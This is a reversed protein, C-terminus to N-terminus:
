GSSETSPSDSQSQESSAIKSSPGNVPSPTAESVSRSQLAELKGRVLGTVKEGAKGFVKANAKLWGTVLEVLMPGDLGEYSEGDGDLFEEVETVPREKTYTFEERLSDMFLRGFMIRTRNNTLGKLLEDIAEDREKRRHNATEPTVAEVTIKDVMSDYSESGDRGKKVKDKFTEHTSAADGRSESFLTAIAHAVPKSIEALDELLGIRNPYFHMERGAVEHKVFNKKSYTFREKWAM